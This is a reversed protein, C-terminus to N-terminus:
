SAQASPAGISAGLTAMYARFAARRIPNPKMDAYFDTRQKWNYGDLTSQAIAISPANMRTAHWWGGPLFATEGEELTFFTPEAKAFEPLRALDVDFPDPILSLNPYEPNPYLHPTEEPRLVMFDKPGHVQSIFVHLYSYDWHLQRFSSGKAGIFLAVSGKDLRMERPLWRHRLRDDAALALEGVDERLEAFQADLTVQNIYPMRGEGGRKLADIVDGVRWDRLEFRVRKDAHRDGFFDLTWKGRAPWHDIADTLIVPRSRAVYRERFEEIGLGARREIQFPM